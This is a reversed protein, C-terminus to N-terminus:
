GVGLGGGGVWGGWGGGVVGGGGLRAARDEDGGGRFDEAADVAGPAHGVARERARAAAARGRFQVSRGLLLEEGVGLLARLVHHKHIKAAVVHAADRFSPRYGHLLQHLDLAVRVHHM